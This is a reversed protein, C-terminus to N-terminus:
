LPFLNGGGQRRLWDLREADVAILIRVGFPDIRRDVEVPVLGLRDAFRAALAQAGLVLPREGALPGRRQGIGVAVLAGRLRAVDVLGPEVEVFLVERRAILRGDAELM